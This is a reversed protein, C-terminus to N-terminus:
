KKWAMAEDPSATVPVEPVLRNRVAVVEAVGLGRLVSRAMEAPDPSGKAAVGLEEVLSTARTMLAHEEEETEGNLVEEILKHLILGRERSGRVAPM